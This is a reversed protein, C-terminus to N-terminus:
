LTLIILANQTILYFIAHEIVRDAVHYFLQYSILWQPIICSSLLLIIHKQGELTIKPSDFLTLFPDAKTYDTTVSYQLIQLKVYEAASKIM